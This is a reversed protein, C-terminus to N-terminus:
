ALLRNTDIGGPRPRSAAEEKQRIRTRLDDYLVHFLFEAPVRLIIGLSLATELTPLMRGREYACLLSADRHGLLQAVKRQSFRMRKRYLALSNKYKGHDM